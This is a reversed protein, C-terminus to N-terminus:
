LRNELAELRQLITENEFYRVAFTLHQVCAGLRVSAPVGEATQLEILREAAAAAQAQLSALADSFAEQRAQRLAEQFVRGQRWRFLTRPSVRVATAADEQTDGAVLCLIARRQKHSLNDSFDSM